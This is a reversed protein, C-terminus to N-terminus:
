GTAASKVALRELKAAPYDPSASPRSRGPSSADAIELRVLGLGEQAARAINEAFARVMITPTSRSFVLAHQVVGVVIRGADGARKL